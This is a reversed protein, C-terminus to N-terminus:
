VHDGENSRILGDVQRVEYFERIDASDDRKSYDANVQLPRYYIPLMKAGKAVREREAAEGRKYADGLVERLFDETEPINMGETFRKRYEEVREEIYQHMTLPNFKRM